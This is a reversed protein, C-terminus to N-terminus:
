KFIKSWNRRREYTYRDRRYYACRTEKDGPQKHCACLMEGTKKDRVNCRCTKCHESSCNLYGYRCTECSWGFQECRKM